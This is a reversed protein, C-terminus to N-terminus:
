VNEGDGWLGTTFDFSLPSLSRAVYTPNQVVAASKQREYRSAKSALLSGRLIAERGMNAYLLSRSSRTMLVSREQARSTDYVDRDLFLSADVKGTQLAAVGAAQSRVLSLLYDEDEFVPGVIRAEKHRWHWPESPVEDHDFGYLAANELLWRYTLSFTGAALDAVTMNVNLDLAIGSQHNSFGPKAAIGKKKGTPTLSGDINVREAYLRKQRENARFGESIRLRVGDKLAAQQMLLFDYGTFKEVLESGIQIVTVQRAIGAVYGTVTQETVPPVNKVTDPPTPAANTAVHMKSMVVNATANLEAAASPAASTTVRQVTGDNSVSTKTTVSPVADAAAAPELLEQEADAAM